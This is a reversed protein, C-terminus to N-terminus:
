EKDLDNSVGTLINHEGDETFVNIKDTNLKLSIRSGPEIINEMTSEQIIEADEGTELEVTYHTNLGLFVCSKVVANIDGTEDPRCLLLEEPRISLKVKQNHRHNELM